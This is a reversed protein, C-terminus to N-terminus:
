MVGLDRLVQERLEKSNLKHSPNAQPAPPSGGADIGTEQVVQKQVAMQKLQNTFRAEIKQARREAAKTMVALVDQVGIEKNPNAELQARHWALAEQRLVADIGEVDQLVPYKKALGQLHNGVTTTYEQELRNTELELHARKIEGQMQTQLKQVNAAILQEAQQATM